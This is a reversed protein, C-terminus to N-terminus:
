RSSAHTQQEMWRDVESLKWRLHRGVRAARPGTGRLRWQYLTNVPVSLYEAVQETTLYTTM